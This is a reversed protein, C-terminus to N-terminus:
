IASAPGFKTAFEESMNETGAVDYEETAIAAEGRRAGCGCDCNERTRVRDDAEDDDCGDEGFNLDDAGEDDANFPDSACRIAGVEDFGTPATFQAARDPKAVWTIEKCSIQRHPMSM